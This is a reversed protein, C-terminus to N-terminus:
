VRGLSERKECSEHTLFAAFDLRPLQTAAFKNHQQLSIGEQAVRPWYFTGQELRKAMMWMGTGDWYLVKILRRRKNTFVFLAGSQATEKLREAVLACLTNVGARMDIPEVAIFIRLGGTFSLM